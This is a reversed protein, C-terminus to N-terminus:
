RSVKGKKKCVAIVENCYGDVEKRLAVALNLNRQHKGSVADATCQEAHELLALARRVLLAEATNLRLTHRYEKTGIDCIMAAM